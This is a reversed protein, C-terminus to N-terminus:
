GGGAARFDAIAQEARGVAALQEAITAAGRAARFAADVRARLTDLRAITAPSMWPRFVDVLRRVEAYLIEATQFRATVIAIPAAVIPSTSATPTAGSPAISGPSTPAVAACAPLCALALAGALLRFLHM